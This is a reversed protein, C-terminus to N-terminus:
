KRRSGVEIAVCGIEACLSMYAFAKPFCAGSQPDDIRMRPTDVAVIGIECVMYRVVFIGGGRIM